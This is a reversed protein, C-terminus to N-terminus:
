GGGWEIKYHTHPIDGTKIIEDMLTPSLHAFAIVGKATLVMRSRTQRDEWTVWKAKRLDNLLYPIDGVPIVTQLDRHTINGGHALMDGIEKMQRKTTLSFLDYGLTRGGDKGWEFKVMGTSNEFVPENIKDLSHLWWFMFSTSWIVIAILVGWIIGNNLANTRGLAASVAGVFIGGLLGGSFAWGFPLLVAVTFNLYTRRVERREELSLSNLRNM